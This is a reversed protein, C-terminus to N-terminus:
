ASLGPGIDPKAIGDIANHIELGRPPPQQVLPSL